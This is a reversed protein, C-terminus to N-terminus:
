GFELEQNNDLCQMAQERLEETKESPNSFNKYINDREDKIPM